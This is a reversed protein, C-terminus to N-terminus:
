LWQLNGVRHPFWHLTFHKGGPQQRLAVSYVSLRTRAAQSTVFPPSVEAIMTLPHSFINSGLEDWLAVVELWLVTSLVTFYGIESLDLRLDQRGVPLPKLFLEGLVHITGKPPWWCHVWWLGKVKVDLCHCFTRYCFMNELACEIGMERRIPLEM